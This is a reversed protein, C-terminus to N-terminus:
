AGPHVSKSTPTVTVTVGETDALWLAAYLLFPNDPFQSLDASVGDCRERAEAVARAFDPAHNTVFRRYEPSIPKM